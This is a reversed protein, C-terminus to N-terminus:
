KTRGEDTPDIVIPMARCVKDAHREWDELDAVSHTILYYGRLQMYFARAWEPRLNALILGSELGSAFVKTYGM